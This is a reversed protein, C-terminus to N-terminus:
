GKAYVEPSHQLYTLSPYTKLAQFIVKTHLYALTCWELARVKLLLDEMARVERNESEKGRKQNACEMVRGRYYSRIQKITSIKATRISGHISVVSAVVPLRQKETLCSYSDHMTSFTTSQSAPVVHICTIMTLSARVLKYNDRSVRILVLGSDADCLRVVVHNLTLQFTKVCFIHTLKVISKFYRTISKASIM